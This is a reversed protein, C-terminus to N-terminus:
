KIKEKINNLNRKAIRPNTMIGPGCICGGECAMGELLDYNEEKIEKFVKNAQNLGNLKIDKIEGNIYNKVANSVGGSAAFNWGDYSGELEEEECNSPEINKTIFLIGIEEFTLINDVQKFLFNEKEKAICPGIFTIDLEQEETKRLYNALHSMPSLSPSINKEYESQYKRVYEVFAPCCSTTVLDDSNEIYDAEEKAVMDAGIAVEYVEEFGIKKLASKIKGISVKPGFQSVISPALLAVKKKSSNKLKYLVKILSSTTEVAGFPCSIYCSGCTVCKDYNINAAGIEDKEIADVKCSVECPRELKMIAYYNCSQQCLGCSICKDPDIKARGEEFQIADKPCSNMCSHAVCNRCLDTVYYRGSPCSDCGEKIIHIKKSKDLLESKGLLIDDLHESIQFLELNRSKEYDLGLFLKIRQKLVEREHYVSDRYTGEPGPLLKKPLLFLNEKLKGEELLKTMEMLTQRKLKMIENFVFNRM